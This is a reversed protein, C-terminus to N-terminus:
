GRTDLFNLIDEATLNGVVNGEACDDIPLGMTELLGLEHGFSYDHCIADWDDCCIQLGGWLNRMTFPINRETLGDRLKYMETQDVPTRKIYDFM